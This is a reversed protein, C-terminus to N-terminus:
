RVQKIVSFIDSSYYTLYFIFLNWETFVSVKVTSDVDSILYVDTTHIIESAFHAKLIYRSFDLVVFKAKAIAIKQVYHKM